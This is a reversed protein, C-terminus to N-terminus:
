HKLFQKQILMNVAMVKGQVLGIKRAVGFALNSENKRGNQHHRRHSIWGAIEWGVVACLRDLDEFAEVGYALPRAHIDAVGVVTGAQV